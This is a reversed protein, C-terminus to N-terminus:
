KSLRICNVWSGFLSITAKPIPERAEVIGFVREQAYKETATRRQGADLM